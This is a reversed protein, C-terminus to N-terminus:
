QFASDSSDYDTDRASGQSGRSRKSRRRLLRQTVTLEGEKEEEGGSKQSVDDDGQSVAQLARRWERRSATSPETSASNHEQPRTLYTARPRRPPGVVEVADFGSSDEVSASSGSGAGAYSRRAPEDTSRSREVPEEPDKLGTSGYSGSRGDGVGWRRPQVMGSMGRGEIVEWPLPSSAVEYPADDSARLTLLAQATDDFSFTFPPGNPVRDAAALRWNGPVPDSSNVLVLKDLFVYATRYIDSLASNRNLNRSEQLARDLQEANYTDAEQVGFVDLLVKDVINQKSTPSFHKSKRIKRLALAYFFLPSKDYWIDAYDIVWEAHRTLRALEEEPTETEKRDKFLPAAMHRGGYMADYSELAKNGM